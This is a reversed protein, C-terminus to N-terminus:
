IMGIKGVKWKVAAITFPIIENQIQKSERLARAAENMTAGSGIYDDILLMAGKPLKVNQKIIMRNEVNHRRQDNNLLEGQRAQVLSAM